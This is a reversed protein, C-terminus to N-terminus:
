MKFVEKKVKKETHLVYSTRCALFTNKNAIQNKKTHFLNANIDNTYLFPLCRTWSSKKKLFILNRINM